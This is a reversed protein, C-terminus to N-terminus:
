VAGILCGVWFALFIALDCRRGFWLGFMVGIALVPLVVDSVWQYQQLEAM